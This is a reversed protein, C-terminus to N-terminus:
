PPAISAGAHVRYDTGDGNIDWHLNVNSAGSTYSAGFNGCNALRTNNDIFLMTQAPGPADVSTGACLADVVLDGDVSQLSLDADTSLQNGATAATRVPDGDRAGEIEIAAVFLLDATGELVVDVTGDGLDPDPLEWQELVPGATGRQVLTLSRGRYSVSASSPSTGSGNMSVAVSVLLVAHSRAPVTSFRLSYSDCSPCNSEGTAVVAPAGGEGGGGGDPGDIHDLQFLSDCGALSSALVIWRWVAEM